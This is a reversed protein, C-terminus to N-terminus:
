ELNTHRARLDDTTQGLSQQLRPVLADFLIWMSQEFVSGMAQVSSSNEAEAMTQGPLYVLLDAQQPLPAQPQATVMAIRAGAERAVGMLAQTTSVYGPGCAVLFLDGPGVPPTTMDGVVALSLGLHMLRMAFSRMVLGERGMAYVVIRRAGQIEDCLAQIEAEDVRALVQDIENLIQHATEYTTM